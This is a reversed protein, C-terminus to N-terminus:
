FLAGRDAADPEELALLARKRELGGAYGTLSGDAGVVRHCPVVISVPNAGVAQGVAQPAAGLEAALEGYTPTEGFPIQQLRAWVQEHLPPGTLTLPLDFDRREGALYAVLQDRVAVALPDQELVIEEGATAREPRTWHGPFYIGALASGELVLTLDGITTAAVTHRTGDPSGETPTSETPTSM